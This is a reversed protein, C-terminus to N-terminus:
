GCDFDAFGKILVRAKETLWAIPKRYMVLRTM